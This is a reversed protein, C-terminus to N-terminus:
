SRGRPRSTHVTRRDPAVVDINRGTGLLPRRVSATRAHQLLSEQWKPDALVRTPLVRVPAPMLRWQQRRHAGLRQRPTSRNAVASHLTRRCDIAYDGIFRLAASAPPAIVRAGKTGIPVLRQLAIRLSPVTIRAHGSSENSSYGRRGVPRGRVRPPSCWPRQVVCPRRAGPRTPRQRVSGGPRVSAWPAKGRDVSLRNM